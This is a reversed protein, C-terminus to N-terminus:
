FYLNFKSINIPNFNIIYLTLHILHSSFAIKTQSNFFYDLFKRQFFPRFFYIICIKFSEPLMVRVKFITIMILRLHNSFKIFVELIWNSISLCELIIKSISLHCKRRSWLFIQFRFIRCYQFSERGIFSCFSFGIFSVPLRLSFMLTLTTPFPFIM